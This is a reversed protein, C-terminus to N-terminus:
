PHQRGENQEEARQPTSVGVIVLMNLVRTWFVFIVWLCSARSMFRGLIPGGCMTADIRDPTAARSWPVHEHAEDAILRSYNDDITEQATKGRDESVGVPRSEMIPGATEKEVRAQQSLIAPM